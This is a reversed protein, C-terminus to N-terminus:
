RAPRRKVARPAAKGRPPAVSARLELHADLVIRQPRGGRHHMRDLLMQWARDALAATPPRMVALPPTVIDAWPPADFSILSVDDPCRIGQKRLTRLLALAIDSNSAVIATPPQPSQLCEQVQREFAADSPDRVMIEARTGRMAAAAERFGRMREQTTVLRPNRVVLMLQRHGARLLAGTAEGMAGRDDVTVYDFRVDASARDVMVAPVRSQAILDFTAASDACPVVILGDVQRAILARIRRQELAPDARSLVQMLEYGQAAAINEFADLLAAFYANSGLPLCIGVVRSRQRRLSQALGNPVYGLSDIAEEVQAHRHASVNGRGNLVNSVTGLSVGARRAVDLITPRAARRPPARTVAKPSTPM